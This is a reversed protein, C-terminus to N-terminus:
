LHANEALREATWLQAPSDMMIVSGIVRFRVRSVRSVRGLKLTQGFIEVWSSYSDTRQVSVSM